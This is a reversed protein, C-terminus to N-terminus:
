PFQIALAIGTMAPCGPMAPYPLYFYYGPNPKGGDPPM